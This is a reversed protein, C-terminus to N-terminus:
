AIAWNIESQDHDSLARNVQSFPRSGFFGRHASLPSPHVSTIVTHQQHILSAKKGAHAGWLVFVTHQQQSGLYSIIADTFTEWGHKSHSGAEGERVTLSTNLLLVGQKAWAELNGHTPLPVDLDTHLETHINRLSPPIRTGHQVSFSLGHAQGAGHYPDQGVIVVRVDHPATLQLAAFVNDDSPFVNFENRERSVFEGLQAFYAQTTEHRLVERWSEPIIM